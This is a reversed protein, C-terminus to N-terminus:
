SLRGLRRALAELSAVSACPVFDDVYPLAARLGQTAPEFGPRSALPDLWILRHCSRRLTAMERALLAPDDREWGDSVLLVVAGSRVTRRVWRRNLEGLSSGIRTGSSWDAVATAARRLATDPQRHRLARTIRTLRTSFAFVELPAEAQGFAHAFRLLFRSYREMSGSVDLILVVPRPRERRRLWYWYMAEGGSGLTRRLM